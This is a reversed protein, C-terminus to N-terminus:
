LHCGAGGVRNTAITAGAQLTRQLDKLSRVAACQRRGTRLPSASGFAEVGVLRPLEPLSLAGPMRRLTEKESGDNPTGVVKKMVLADKRRQATKHRLEKMRTDMYSRDEQLWRRELIKQQERDEYEVFPNDARQKPPYSMSRIRGMSVSAGVSVAHGMSVTNAMSMAPGM